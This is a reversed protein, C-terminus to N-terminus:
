QLSFKILPKYLNELYTEFDEKKGGIAHIVFRVHEKKCDVIRTITIQSNVKLEMAGVEGDGFGAQIRM